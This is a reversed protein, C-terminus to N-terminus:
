VALVARIKRRAHPARTGPLTAKARTNFRDRMRPVYVLTVISTNSSCVPCGRVFIELVVTRELYSAVTREYPAAVGGWSAVACCYGIKFSARYLVTTPSSGSVGTGSNPHPRGCKYIRISICREVARGYPEAVGHKTSHRPECGFSKEEPDRASTRSTWASRTSIGGRSSITNAVSGFSM